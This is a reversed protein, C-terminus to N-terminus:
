KLTYVGNSDEKKLRDGLREICVRGDLGATSHIIMDGGLSIAVHGPFFILDGTKVSEFTTEKLRSSRHPDADRWIVVGNLYYTMFALGSCDIGLASKGGWRYITGLYEKAREVVREGFGEPDFAKMKEVSTKRVFGLKGEPLVVKAFRGHDEDEVVVLRDGRVLSLVPRKHYEPTPLIDTHAATVVFDGVEGEGLADSPVYGEYGYFTRIKSWGEETSLVEVSTGFIGEDIYQSEKTPEEFIGVSSQKFVLM